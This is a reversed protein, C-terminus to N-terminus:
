KRKKKESKKRECKEFKPIEELYFHYPGVIVICDIKCDIYIGKKIRHKIEAIYMEVQLRADTLNCLSFESKIECIIIDGDYTIACIDPTKPSPIRLSESLPMETYIEKIDPEKYIIPDQYSNLTVIAEKLNEPKSYMEVLIDHKSVM